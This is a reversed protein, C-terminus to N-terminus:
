KTRVHATNVDIHESHIGVGTFWVAFLVMVVALGVMIIFLGIRWWNRCITELRQSMKELHRKM